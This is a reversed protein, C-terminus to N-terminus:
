LEDKALRQGGVSLAVLLPLLMRISLGKKRRKRRERRRILSGFKISGILSRALAKNPESQWSKLQEIEVM